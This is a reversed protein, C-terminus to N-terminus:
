GREQKAIENKAFRTIFGGVAYPVSYPRLPTSRYSHGFGLRHIWEHLLNNAIGPINSSNVFWEYIYQIKSGFFTYGIVGRRNNRDVKVFIEANQNAEEGLEKGSMITAYIEANSKTTDYFGWVKKTQYKKFPWFGGVQVKTTYSYNLIFQKFEVSNLADEMLRAAQTLKERERENTIGELTLIVRM